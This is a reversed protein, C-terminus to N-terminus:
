KVLFQLVRYTDPGRFQLFYRGNGWQAWPLLVSHNGASLDGQAIKAVQKGQADFVCIRANGARHLNFEFRGQDRGSQVIAPARGGGAKSADTRISNPVPIVSRVIRGDAGVVWATDTNAMFVAFMPFSLYYTVWGTEVGVPWTKGGDFTKGSWSRGPYQDGVGIGINASVFHVGNFNAAYRGTPHEHILEWHTGGDSTKWLGNGIAYATSEDAFFLTKLEMGATLDMRSWSGGGDTTRLLTGPYSGIGEGGIWGTKEDLFQISNLTAATNLPRPTWTGGGDTTALLTGKAGVIFGKRTDLFHLAHLNESTGSVQPQWSSGGDSSHLITGSDGVTWGTDRDLFRIAHLVKETGSSQLSWKAGADSTGLLTGRDGAAWGTRSDVFHVAYLNAMRKRHMPAGSWTKGSDSTSLRISGEPSEGELRGHKGDTFAVSNLLLSDYGDLVKRQWTFGGDGTRYVKRNAVSWATQSDLFTISFEGPEPLRSGDRRWTRGGDTSKSLSDNDTIVWGFSEDLFRIRGLSNRAGSNRASWNQGGDETCLLERPEGSLCGRASDIMSIAKFDGSVETFQNQWTRGADRTRKILSQDGVIWGNRDDTFDISGSVPPRTEWTAGSDTTRYLNYQGNIWLSNGALHVDWDSSALELPAKKWTKGGDHTVCAGPSLGYAFGWQATVFRERM